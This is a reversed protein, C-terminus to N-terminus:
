GHRANASRISMWLCRYPPLACALQTMLLPSLIAPRACRRRVRSARSAGRGSHPGHGMRRPRSNVLQGETPQCRAAMGRARSTDLELFLESWPVTACRRSHDARLLTPPCGSAAAAKWFDVDAAEHVDRWTALGAVFDHYARRYRPPPEVRAYHAWLDDIVTVSSWGDLVVHHHTWIMEWSHDGMRYVAVRMLPPRTLDFPRSRDARLDEALRAARGEAPLHRLDTESFPLEVSRAVVQVPRPLEDWALATRLADHRAVVSQWASRLRGTDLEGSLEFRMQVVYLGPAPETLCEVLLGAQAYTLPYIDQVSSNIM